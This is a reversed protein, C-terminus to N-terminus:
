RLQSGSDYILKHSHRTAGVVTGAVAGFAVDVILGILATGGRSFFCWDNGNCGGGIAGLLAGAGGGVAIGGAISKGFPRGDILTIKRIDQRAVPKGAM